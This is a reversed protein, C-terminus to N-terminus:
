SLTWFQQHPDFGVAREGLSVRKPFTGEAIRRYITPRSLGTIRMVEPLRIISIPILQQSM